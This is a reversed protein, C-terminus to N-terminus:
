DLGLDQLGLRLILFSPHLIYKSKGLFPFTEALQKLLHLVFVGFFRFWVHDCHENPGPVHTVRSGDRM